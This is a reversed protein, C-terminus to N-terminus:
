QDDKVEEDFTIIKLRLKLRELDVLLRQLNRYHSKKRQIENESFRFATDTETLDSSKHMQEQDNITSVTTEEKM